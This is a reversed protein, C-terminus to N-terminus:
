LIYNYDSVITRINYKEILDDSEDRLKIITLRFKFYMSLSHLVTYESEASVMLFLAALFHM